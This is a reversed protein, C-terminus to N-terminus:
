VAADPTKARCAQALLRACGPSNSWFAANLGDPKLGLSSGVGAEPPVVIEALRLPRKLSHTAARLEGKRFKHGEDVLM